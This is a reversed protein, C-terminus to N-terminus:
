DQFRTACFVFCDDGVIGFGSERLGKSARVCRWLFLHVRTGKFLHVRTGKCLSFGPERSSTFGPERAYLFGQNGQLPSGRNGQMSFVRTGKFLHVGTGKCLSFGPERSYTFGPEKGQAESGPLEVGGSGSPTSNYHAQLVHSGRM